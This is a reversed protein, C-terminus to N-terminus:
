SEDDSLLSALGVGVVGLVVLVVHALAGGLLNYQISAAVLATASAPGIAGMLSFITQAAAHM